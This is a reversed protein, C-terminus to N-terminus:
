DDTHGMTPWNYCTSPVVSWKSSLNKSIPSIIPSASTNTLTPPLWGEGPRVNWSAWSYCIPSTSMPSRIPSRKVGSPWSPNMTGSSLRVTVWTISRVMSLSELSTTKGERGTTDSLTILFPSSSRASSLVRCTAASKNLRARSTDSGLRFSSRLRTGARDSSSSLPCVAKTSGM